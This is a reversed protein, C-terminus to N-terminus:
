LVFRSTSLIKLVIGATAYLLCRREYRVVEAFKGFGRRAKIAEYLYALSLSMCVLECLDFTFSQKGPTTPATIFLLLYVVVLTGIAVKFTSHNM